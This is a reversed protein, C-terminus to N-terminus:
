VKLLERAKAEAPAIVKEQLSAGVAEVGDYRFMELVWPYRKLHEFMGYEDAGKQLLPQIPVSPLDPVIRQLEQPISKADTIDAVVFRAMHALISVTETIDRNDPKGFDFLIPLYNRHRLEERIAELIAKREPTFRGLILVA